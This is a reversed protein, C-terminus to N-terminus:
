PKLDLAAKATEMNVPVSVHDHVILWKGKAKRLGSTVRLWLDSRQRNKLTGSIRELSHVFAVNDGAVIRLDRFEVEIPGDYQALFEEYDKRYADHGKYQLPPVIDYAVVADGPEYVSMIDDIDHARFAKAWRDYLERIKAESKNSEAKAVPAKPTTRKQGQGAVTLPGMLVALTFLIRMSRM